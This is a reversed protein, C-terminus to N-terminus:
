GNRRFALVDVSNALDLWGRWRLFLLGGHLIENEGRNGHQGDTDSRGEGGLGYGIVEALDDVARSVAAIRGAALRLQGLWRWRSEMMSCSVMMFFNMRAAAATRLRPAPAEKAACVTVLWRPWTM